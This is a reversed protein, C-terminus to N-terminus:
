IPKNLDFVFGKKNSGCPMSSGLKNLIAGGLPIVNKVNAQITLVYFSDERSGSLYLFLTTDDLPERKNHKITTM